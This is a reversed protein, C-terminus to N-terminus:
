RQKQLYSYLDAIDQEPIRAAPYSPMIASGSSRIKKKFQKLSLSLGALKPAQGGQGRIGHCGQCRYLTFWREGNEPNGPVYTNNNCASLILVSTLLTFLCPHRLM